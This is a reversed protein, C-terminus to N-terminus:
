VAMDAIPEKLTDSWDNGLPAGVINDYGVM